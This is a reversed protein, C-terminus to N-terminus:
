KAHRNTKYKIADVPCIIECNSCQHCLTKDIFAKKISGDVTVANSPCVKECKKCGICKEKNVRFTFYSIKGALSLLAGFPCFVNHFLSPKFRLTMIVALILLYLLIPLDIKLTRKLFIMSLILLAMMVWPIVKFIKWKPLVKVQINLKKSVWETPIMVTNMPCIWGCYIRGSVPTLILFVGFLIIWLNIKGTILLFIFLILFIIRSINVAIKKM